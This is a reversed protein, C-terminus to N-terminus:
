RREIVERLAAAEARLRQVQEPRALREYEAAAAERAAVEGRVIEDVEHETLTRRPVEAAGLGSVAGAIPGGGARPAASADVAEANDIAAIASRLASIAAANRSKM